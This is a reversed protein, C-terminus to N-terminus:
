SLCIEAIFRSNTPSKTAGHNRKLLCLESNNEKLIIEWKWNFISLPTNFVFPRMFLHLLCVFTFSSTKWLASYELYWIMETGLRSYLSLDRKMSLCVSINLPSPPSGSQKNDELLVWLRSPQLSLLWRWEQLDTPDTKACLRAMFDSCM